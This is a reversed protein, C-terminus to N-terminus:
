GLRTSTWTAKVGASRVGPDTPITTSTSREVDVM